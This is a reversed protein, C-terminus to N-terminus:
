CGRSQRCSGCLRECYSKYKRLNVTSQLVNYEDFQRCNVPAVKKNEPNMWSYSSSGRCVAGATCGFCHDDTEISLGLLDEPRIKGIPKFTVAPLRVMQNFCCAFLRGRWDVNIQERCMVKDLKAVDFNRILLNMYSNLLGKQTLFARFRDIPMNPIAFFDDFIIGYDNGLNERYVAELNGQVPLFAGLPRYVLNLKLNSKKTGYGISNLQKLVEIKRFFRQRDTLNTEKYFPMSAIIEVNNKALFEPLHRYESNEIIDLNVRLMIQKVSKIQRLIKILIPLNPNLTSSEGFIDVAIKGANDVFKLCDQMVALGMMKMPVGGHCRRFHLNDLYGMNVQLCRIADRILAKGTKDVYQRFRNQM